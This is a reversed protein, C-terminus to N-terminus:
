DVFVMDIMKLMNQKSQKVASYFLKPCLSPCVFSVRFKRSRCINTMLNSQLNQPFRICFFQVDDGVNITIKLCYQKESSPIFFLNSLM